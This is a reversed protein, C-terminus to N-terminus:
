VQMCTAQTITSQTRISCFNVKVCFCRCVCAEEHNGLEAVFVYGAGDVGAIFTDNATASLVFFNWLAPFMGALLPDVAWAIPVSRTARLVSLLRCIDINVIDDDGDLDVM